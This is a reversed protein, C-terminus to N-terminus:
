LDVSSRDKEEIKELLEQTAADRDARRQARDREDAEAIERQSRMFWNGRKIAVLVKM